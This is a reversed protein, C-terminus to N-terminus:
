SNLKNFSNIVLKSTIRSYYETQKISTHGMMKKVAELPVGKNVSMTGFTHRGCHFSIRKKVGVRITIERLFKNTNQNKISRFVYEDDSNILKNLNILKAAKDTVPVVYENGNKVRNRKILYYGGERIIDSSKFDCMCAYDFGLECASLFQKLVNQYSPILVKSHYLQYYKELEDEQLFVRKKAKSTPLKYGFFPNDEILKQHQAKTTVMKIHRLTRQITNNGNGYETRFFAQIKDLFDHDIDLVNIKESFGKLRNYEKTYNKVTAEDIGQNIKSAKVQDYIEYFCVFKKEGTFQSKFGIFGLDFNDNDADMIIKKATNYKSVLYSNWDDSNVGLKSKNEVYNPYIGIWNEKKLWLNMGIRNSRREKTFRLYIQHEGAENSRDKRLYYKITVKNM